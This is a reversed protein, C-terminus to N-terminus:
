VLKNRYALYATVQNSNISYVFSKVYFVCVCLACTKM